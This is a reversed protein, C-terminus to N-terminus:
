IKKCRYVAVTKRKKKGKRNVEKEKSKVLVPKKGQPCQKAGRVVVKDTVTQSSNEPAQVIIVEDEPVNGLGADEMEEKKNEVNTVVVPEMLELNDEPAVVSDSGTNSQNVDSSEASVLAELSKPGFDGDVSINVLRQFEKVKSATDPGYIGDTVLGFSFLKNLRNQLDKVDEGVPKEEDRLVRDGLKFETDSDVSDGATDDGYIPPIVGNDVENASPMDEPTIDEDDSLISWLGFGTLGAAAGIVLWDKWSLKKLQGPNTIKTENIAIKIWTQRSGESPNWVLKGTKKNIVWGVPRGTKPNIKGSNKAVEELRRYITLQEETLDKIIIKTSSAGGSKPKGAGPKPTKINKITNREINVININNKNGMVFDDIKTINNIVTKNVNIIPRGVMMSMATDRAVAEPLGHTVKLDNVIFTFSKNIYNNTINTNNIVNQEVTKIFQKSGPKVNKINKIVNTLEKAGTAATKVVGARELALNLMLARESVHPNFVPTANKGANQPIRMYEGAKKFEDMVGLFNRAADDGYVKAVNGVMKNPASILGRVQKSNLKTGQRVLKVVDDSVNATQKLGMMVDDTVKAGGSILSRWGQENIWTQENILPINSLQRFRNIEELINNKM